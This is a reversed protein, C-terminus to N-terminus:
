MNPSTLRGFSIDRDLALWDCAFNLLATPLFKSCLQTFRLITSQIESVRPYLKMFKRAPEPPDSVSFFEEYECRLKVSAATYPKSHPFRDYIYDVLRAFYGDAPAGAVSEKDELDDDVDEDDDVRHERGGSNGGSGSPVGSLDEQFGPPQAVRPKYVRDSSFRQAQALGSVRAGM